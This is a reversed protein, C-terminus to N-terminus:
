PLKSFLAAVPGGAGFGYATGYVVNCAYNPHRVVGFLGGTYLKGKNERKSKFRHRGIESIAETIAALVHITASAYLYSPSWLPNSAAATFILTCLSEYIAPVVVGFFAFPLTIRENCYGWIWINQKLLLVATMGLFVTSLRPQAGLVPLNISGHTPPRPLGIASLPHKTIIWHQIPISFMRGVGLFLSGALSRSYDGRQIGLAGADERKGAM